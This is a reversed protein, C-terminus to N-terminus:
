DLGGGPLEPEIEDPQQRLIIEEDTLACKQLRRRHPADDVDHLAALELIPNRAQGAVDCGAGSRDIGYLLKQLTHPRVCGSTRSPAGNVDDANRSQSKRLSIIADTKVDPSTEIAFPCSRLACTASTVPADPNTRRNCVHQGSGACRNRHVVALP